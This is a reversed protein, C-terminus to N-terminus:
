AALPSTLKLEANDPIAGHEFWHWLAILLKRALAVIGIKKGRVSYREGFWKSLDSGPQFRLWSWSNEVM